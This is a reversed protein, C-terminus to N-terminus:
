SGAEMEMEPQERAARERESQRTVWTHGSLMEATAERRTPFWGTWADADTRLANWTAPLEPRGYRSVMGALEWRGGKHEQTLVDYDRFGPQQPEEPERRRYRVRTM